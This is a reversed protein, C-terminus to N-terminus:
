ERSHYKKKHKKRHHAATYQQRQLASQLPSFAACLRNPQRSCRTDIASSMGNMLASVVSYKRSPCIMLHCRTVVPRSSSPSLQRADESWAPLSYGRCSRWGIDSNAPPRSTSIRRNASVFSISFVLAKLVSQCQRLNKWQGPHRSSLWM